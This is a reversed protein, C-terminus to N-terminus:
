KLKNEEEEELGTELRTYVCCMQLFIVLALSILEAAGFPSHLFGVKRICYVVLIGMISAPLHSDFQYRQYKKATECSTDSFIAALIQNRYYL